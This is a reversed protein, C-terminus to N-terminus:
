SVNWNPSGTIIVAGCQTLSGVRAIAKGNATWDPSGTTIPNDGHLLCAYTDGVRACALGNFTRNPSGTTIVGGHSGQDGVRAVPTTM